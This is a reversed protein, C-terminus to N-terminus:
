PIDVDSFMVLDHHLLDFAARYGLEIELIVHEHRWGASTLTKAWVPLAKWQRRFRWRRWWRIM